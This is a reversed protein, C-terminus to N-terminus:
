ELVKNSRNLKMKANMYYTVYALIPVIVLLTMFKFYGSLILALFSNLFLVSTIAVFIYFGISYALKDWAPFSQCSVTM